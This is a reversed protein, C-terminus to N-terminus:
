SKAHWPVAMEVMTYGAVGTFSTFMDISLAMLRLIPISIFTLFDIIKQM